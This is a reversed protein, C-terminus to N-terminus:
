VDTHCWILRLELGQREWGKGSSTGVKDSVSGRRVQSSVLNQFADLIFPGQYRFIGKCATLPAPPPTCTHSLGVCSCGCRSQLAM